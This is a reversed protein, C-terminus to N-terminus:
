LPRDSRLSWVAVRPLALAEADGAAAEAAGMDDGGGHPVHEVGALAAEVAATLADPLASHVRM